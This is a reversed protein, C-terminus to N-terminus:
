IFRKWADKVLMSGGALFATGRYPEDGPGTHPLHACM